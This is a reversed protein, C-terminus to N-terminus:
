GDFCAYPHAGNRFTNLVNGLEAHVTRARSERSGDPDQMILPQLAYSSIVAMVSLRVDAVKEM